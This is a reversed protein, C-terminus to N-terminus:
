PTDEYIAVHPTGDHGISGRYMGETNFIMAIRGLPDVVIVGGEAGAEKLKKKVVEDAAEAIGLGKYRVLSVIDHAVALRIFHEGDGTCSVACATDDAYVGAGILPTDGVRGDLQGTLGGTSAAAALNGHRDRAVAGVTGVQIRGPEDRRAQAEGKELTKELERLREDTQFYSPPVVELGADRAFQDADPGVMLVHPTRDMVARAAAIPNKVVSVGAVAGAKRSRGDMISADLRNRRGRTFAAGKGANFLPSDELVRIAAEVADLSTGGRALIVHGARLSNELGEEYAKRLEPTMQARSIVQSGGHIVLMAKGEQALATAVPSLLAM